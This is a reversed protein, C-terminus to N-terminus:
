LFINSVSFVVMNELYTFSYLCDVPAPISTVLSQITYLLCICIKAM